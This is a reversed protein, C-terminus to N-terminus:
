AIMAHRCGREARDHQDVIAIGVVEEVADDDFSGPNRKRDLYEFPGLLRELPKLRIRVMIHIENQEVDVHWAHIAELKQIGKVAQRLLILAVRLIQM